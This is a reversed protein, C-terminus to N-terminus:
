LNVCFDPNLTKTCADWQTLDPIWCWSDALFHLNMVIAKQWPQTPVSDCFLKLLFSIIMTFYSVFKDIQDKFQQPLIRKLFLHLQTHLDWDTKKQKREKKSPNLSVQQLRSLSKEDERHLQM